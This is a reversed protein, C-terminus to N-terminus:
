TRHFTVKRSGSTCEFDSSPIGQAGDDQATRVCTFGDVEIRSPGGVAAVRPGVKRVLAEAEACSLNFAVVDSAMDESNPTFGISACRSAPGTVEFQGIFCATCAFVIRYTGRTVPVGDVDSQRCNGTSPVVFEGTLRGSASVSVTHEAPAYLACPTNATLWLTTSRAKWMEDTFGTGEIRVRTGAPGRAPTARVQPIGDVLVPPATTSTTAAPRTTATPRTTTVRAGTTTSTTTAEATTSTTPQETTTSAPGLARVGADGSSCATLASVAVVAMWAIRRM